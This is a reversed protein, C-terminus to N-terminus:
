RILVTFDLGYRSATYALVRRRLDAVAEAEDAGHGYNVSAPLDVDTTSAEVSQPQGKGDNYM